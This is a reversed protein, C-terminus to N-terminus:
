WLALGVIGTIPVSFTLATPVRAADVDGISGLADDARVVRVGRRAAGRRAPQHCNTLARGHDRAAEHPGAEVIAALRRRVRPRVDARLVADDVEAPERLVREVVVLRPPRRRRHQVDERVPVPGAELALVDGDPDVRVEVADLEEVVAAAEARLVHRLVLVEGPGHRVRRAHDLRAPIRPPRCTIVAVVRSSRHGRSRDVSRASRVSSAASPSSTATNATSTCSACPRRTGIVSLATVNVTFPDPRSSPTPLPSGALWSDSMPVDRRANQPSTRPSRAPRSTPRGCRSRPWTARGPLRAAVLSRVRARDARPRLHRRPLPRHGCTGADRAQPPRRAEGIGRGSGLVATGPASRCSGFENSRSGRPSAREPPSRPGAAPRPGGARRRHLPPRSSSKRPSDRAWEEGM